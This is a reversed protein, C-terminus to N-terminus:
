DSFVALIARGVRLDDIRLALENDGSKPIRQVVKNPVLALHEERVAYRGKDADAIHTFDADYVGVSHLASFDAPRAWEIPRNMKDAGSGGHRACSIARTQFRWKLRRM